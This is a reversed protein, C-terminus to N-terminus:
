RATARHSASTVNAAHRDVALHTAAAVFALPAAMTRMADVTTPVADLLAPTCALVALGQARSVAVNFRHRDFVFGIGRSALAPTSAAASFVVVPAERGQFRDVTGVRVGELGAGALTIRLMDKHRNYPSVVLVDDPTLPRTGKEDTWTTGIISAIWAAVDAAEEASATTAGEHEVALWALGVGATAHRTECSPDHGLRGEYFQDSVFRTIEPRMRYTRELFLGRDAAMTDADGIVHDLVAAGSGGPHVAQSPQSLQQPDGLLVISRAGNAASVVDALCLQGAEDVFLVDVPSETADAGAWLWATGGVLNYRDPNMAKANSKVYDVANLADDPKDSRKVATDVAVGDGADAAANYVAAVLNHIAAHSMATIGVRRGRRLLDLIMRAGLWTKGTGPPGQVPLCSRDLRGPLAIRGALDDIDGPARLDDGTLRPPAGVLLQAAADNLNAVGGAALAREAFAHLADLKAGPFVYTSRVLSTPPADLLGDKDVLVLEGADMDISRVNSFRGRGDDGLWAVTHSKRLSTPQTPVELRVGDHTQRGTAPLQQADALGYLADTDDALDDVDRDASALLRAHDARAERRHYGLLDALLRDESTDCARLADALDDRDATDPEPDLLSPRYPDEATRLAELWDRVALTAAVDDTNYAAIASLDGNHHEDLDAPVTGGHAAMAAEYRLVAGHGATVDTGRRYGAAREVHKLSLSPAGIQVTGRVAPLLDVFVGERVLIALPSPDLDHEVVLRELASRETHNYHWVHMDPDAARRRAIEDLLWMVADREADADHAWRREWHWGGSDSAVLLGFLFFLGRDARWAPHGELDLFVDGPSAPPLLALGHGWRGVDDRDHRAHPPPADPRMEAEAQLRAQRTHRNLTADDLCAVPGLHGALQAGTTIGATDLLAREGTTTGAILHLADADRWEATCRPQFVCMDCHNCPVAVTDSPEAADLQTLLRAKLRHWVAAVEALRITEQDGSGLWVHIQDPANGTAAAVAEAYFCLQLVHAVKAEQRALKADVPEWTVHGAATKTRVLFDAVGRVGDHVLPFQALVNADGDLLSQARLAWEEFPEDPHRGPPRVIDLGQEILVAECAAEHAYGKDMLMRAFASLGGHPQKIFGDEVKHALSLAHQCGLWTTIKTPTLLRGM